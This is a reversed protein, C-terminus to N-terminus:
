ITNVHANKAGIHQLLHELDAVIHVHSFEKTWPSDGHNRLDAAIVPTDMGSAMKKGVTDWQARRSFLGHLLILPPKSSKQGFETYAMLIPTVIAENAAQKATTLM